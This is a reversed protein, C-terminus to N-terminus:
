GDKIRKSTKTVKGFSVAEKAVIKCFDKLSEAVILADTVTM